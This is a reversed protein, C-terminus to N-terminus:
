GPLYDNEYRSVEGPSLSANGRTDKAQPNSLEQLGAFVSEGKVCRVNGVNWIARLM